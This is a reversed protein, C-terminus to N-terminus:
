EVGKHQRIKWMAVSAAMIAFQGAPFTVNTPEYTEPDILAIELGPDTMVHDLQVPNRDKVEGTPYTTRDVVYVRAEPPNVHILEVKIAVPHSRVEGVEVTEYLAM